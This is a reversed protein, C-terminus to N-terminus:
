RRASRRADLMAAIVEAVFEYPDKLGYYGVETGIENFAQPSLKIGDLADFRAQDKKAHLLHGFEHRLPHQPNSSSYDKINYKEAVFRAADRGENKWYRHNPNIVFM